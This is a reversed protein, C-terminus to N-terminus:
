RAASLLVAMRDAARRQLSPIVHSYTNLIMGFRRHGLTDMVVRPHEGQALMLRGVRAPKSALSALRRGIKRSDRTGRALRRM